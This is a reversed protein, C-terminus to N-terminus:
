SMCGRGRRCARSGDGVRPTHVYRVAARGRMHAGPTLAGGMGERTLPPDEQQSQTQAREAGGLAVQGFGNKRSVLDIFM